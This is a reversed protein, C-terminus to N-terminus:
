RWGCSIVNWESVTCTQKPLMGCGSLLALAAVAAAIAAARM